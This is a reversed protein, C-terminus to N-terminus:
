IREMTWPCSLHEPKWESGELGGM